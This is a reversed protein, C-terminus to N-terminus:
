GKVAGLMVGKTFHRQIFPYVVIIPVCAVVVAAMQFTMTPLIIEPDELMNENQALINKLVVQIPRLKPDTVYYIAAFFENWHGVLYFLGVTMVAPKSLPLAIKLAKTLEGAGDIEASEFLEDPLGEFFSKMVLTNYSWVLGPIMMAWVSDILGVQRVVLYTPVLGGSFLMPIFIIAFFFKRGYLAKRSLPYALLITVIMNLATGVVTILITVKFAQPILPQSILARYAEFTLKKPILIFGGHKLVESYPTLSASVVALIPFICLLAVISLVGIVIWDFIKDKKGNVM